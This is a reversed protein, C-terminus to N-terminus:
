KIKNSLVTQMTKALHIIEGWLFIISLALFIWNISTWVDDDTCRIDFGLAYKAPLFLSIFLCLTGVLLALGKKYKEIYSM